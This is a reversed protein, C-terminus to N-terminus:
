WDRPQFGVREGWQSEVNFIVECDCGAGHEGLWQLTEAVPLGHRQLFGRTFTFRGLPDSM